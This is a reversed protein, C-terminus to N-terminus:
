VSEGQGGEQDEQDPKKVRHLSAWPLPGQVERKGVTDTMAQQADRRRPWPMLSLIQKGQLRGSVEKMQNRFGSM